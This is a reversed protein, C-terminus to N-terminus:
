ADTIAEAQELLQGYKAPAVESFKNSGAAQILERVQVTHGAQSLRALVTRVQELTVQVVEPAPAPAPQALQAAAIPRAGEASTTELLSTVAEWQHFRPFIIQRSRSRVGTIPDVKETIQLLIVLVPEGSGIRAVAKGAPGIRRGRQRILVM